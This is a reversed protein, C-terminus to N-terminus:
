EGVTVQALAGAGRVVLMGREEPPLVVEVFGAVDTTAQVRAGSPLEIVLPLRAEPLPCSESVSDVVRDERTITPSDAIVQAATLVGLVAGIVAGDRGTFGDGTGADGEKSRVAEDTEHVERTCLRPHQAMVRLRSGAVSAEIVLEEAHGVVTPAEYRDYHSRHVATHACAVLLLLPIARM